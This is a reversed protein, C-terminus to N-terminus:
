LKADLVACRTFVTAVVCVGKIGSCLGFVCVCLCM